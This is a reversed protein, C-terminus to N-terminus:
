DLHNKGNLRERVIQYADLGQDINLYGGVLSAIKDVYIVVIPHRSAWDWSRNQADAEARVKAIVKPLSHAVGSINCAWSVLDADQWDQVTLVRDPCSYAERYETTGM